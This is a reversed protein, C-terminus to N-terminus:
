GARARADCSRRGDRRDPSRRLFAVTSTGRGIRSAGRVEKLPVSVARRSKAVHLTGSSSTLRTFAACPTVSFSTTSPRRRRGARSAPLARPAGRRGGQQGPDRDAGIRRLPRCAEAAVPDRVQEGRQGGVDVVGHLAQARDGPGRLLRLDHLAGEARVQQDVPDLEGRGCRHARDHTGVGPRTRGCVVRRREVDDDRVDTTRALRDRDRARSQEVEVADPGIRSPIPSLTVAQDYAPRSFKESRVQGSRTASRPAIVAPM